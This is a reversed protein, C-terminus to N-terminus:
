QHMELQCGVHRRISKGDLTRHCSTNNLSDVVIYCRIKSMYTRRHQGAHAFYVNSQVLNMAYVYSV